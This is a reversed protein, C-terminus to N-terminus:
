FEGWVDLVVVKGKHAGIIKEIDAAKVRVLKIDDAKAPQRGDDAWAAGAFLSVLATTLLCAALRM